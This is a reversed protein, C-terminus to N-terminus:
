ADDHEDEELDMYQMSHGVAAPSPPVGMRPMTNELVDPEEFEELQVQSYKQGFGKRRIMFAVFFLFISLVVALYMFPMDPKAGHKTVEEKQIEDTHKNKMSDHTTPIVVSLAPLAHRCSIPLRARHMHLCSLAAVAAQRQVTSAKKTLPVTSLDNWIFATVIDNLEESNQSDTFNESHKFRKSKSQRENKFVKLIDASCLSSVAQLCGTMINELQIAMEHREKTNGNENNKEAQLVDLLDLLVDRTTTETSPSIALNLHQKEPQNHPLKTNSVDAHIAHFHTFCTSLLFLTRLM